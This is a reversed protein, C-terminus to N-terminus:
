ARGRAAVEAILQSLRAGQWALPSKGPAETVVRARPIAAAYRRGTELPHEPDAEDRSAVVVTPVALAALEDWSAFPISRPVVSLADAVADLHRHESLRQHIIRLATARWHEPLKSSDYAAAFGEVGGRRLAKSLEDWRALREAQELYSLAPEFAPTILALAAVREPKDLAFRVITHCGMSAGALAAREIGCTDLVAALDAALDAYEYADPWPAPSSAGHGRADYAVVRYGSRELRRSGHVVWRRTATLGHLLVVPPGTGTEEAALTVAGNALELEGM